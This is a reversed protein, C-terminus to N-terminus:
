LNSLKNKQTVKDTNKLMGRAHIAQLRQFILLLHGNDIMAALHGSCFREKRIHTTLLKQLTSIDAVTLLEPNTVFSDAQQQWALWDFSIIFNEQYLFTIFQHFEKSYCYPEFTLPKTQIDYLKAEKNTFLKVFALIGELNKRTIETSM